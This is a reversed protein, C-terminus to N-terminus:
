LLEHLTEVLHVVDIGVHEVALRIFSELPQRLDDLLRASSVVHLLPDVGPLVGRVLAELSREEHALAIVRGDLEAERHLRHLIGLIRVGNGLNEGGIGALFHRRLTAGLVEGLSATSVGRTAFRASCSRLASVSAPSRKRTEAPSESTKPIRRTTLKACPTKEM